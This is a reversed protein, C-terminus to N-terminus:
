RGDGRAHTTLYRLIQEREEPSLPAMKRHQMQQDMRKLYHNWEKATHRKPHPLVHCVSCRGRYVQADRSQADPIPTPAAACGWLTLLVFVGVFGYQKKM